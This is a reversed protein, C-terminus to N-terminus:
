NSNLPTNRRVYYIGYSNTGVLRYLKPVLVYTKLEARLAKAEEETLTFPMPASECCGM